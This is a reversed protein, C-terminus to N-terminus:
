ASSEKHLVANIVQRATDRIVHGAGGELATPCASV